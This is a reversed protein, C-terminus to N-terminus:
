GPGYINRSCRSGIQRSAVMSVATVLHSQDRGECLYGLLPSEIGPTDFENEGPAVDAELNGEFPRIYNLLQALAQRQWQTSFLTGPPYFLTSPWIQGTPRTNAM